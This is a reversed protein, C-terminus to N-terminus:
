SSSERPPARRLPSQRIGRYRDSTVVRDDTKGVSRVWVNLVDGDPKLYALFRAAACTQM